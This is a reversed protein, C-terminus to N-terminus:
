VADRGGVADLHARHMRAFRLVQGAMVALDDAVERLLPQGQDDFSRTRTNIAVGMPAPWGRLAHVVSRLAMLTTGAAQWGGACVVCGVARGDLYPSDDDRLDETYDLANKVLGSMSGHYAPSGLVLGDCRRLLDVLRRARESREPRDPSYMPLDIEPGPLAIVEAGLSRVISLAYRMALESSSGARTTGGLGVILPASPNSM